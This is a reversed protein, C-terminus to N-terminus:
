RGTDRRLFKNRYSDGAKQPGAANRRPQRKYVDAVQQADVDVILVGTINRFGGESHRDIRGM